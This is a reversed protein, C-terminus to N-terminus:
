PRSWGPPTASTSTRTSCATSSAAARGRLKDVHPCSPRAATARPTPRRAHGHLARHLRHRLRGLRDGARGRRGGQLRGPGRDPVAPDHLRRLERGHRRRPDRRGRALQAAVFAVGDVQDRVEVSGMDRNLAAEFAHGRRSSGRNDMKWVAFGREALYQATLDATMGWSETVTQVHPGGYVMVVLPAKEGSPGAVEASLLRRAPDRRRSEQVRRAAAPRAELDAVRPDDRADDLTALSRARATASRPSRPATGPRSSTSSTSATPRSWRAIRGPRAPSARRARRRRPLGPLAPSELPSERGATFWVERREQDLAVVRM